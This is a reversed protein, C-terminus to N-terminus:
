EAPNAEAEYAAKAAAVEAERIKVLEEAMAVELQWKEILQKEETFTTAEAIEKEIEAIEAKLEEIDEKMEPIENVAEEADELIDLLASYEAYALNALRNKKYYDIELDALEFALENYVDLNEDVWAMYEEVRAANAKILAIVDETDTNEKLEALQEAYVKVDNTWSTYNRSADAYAVDWDNHTVYIGDAVYVEGVKVFAAKALDFARQADDVANEAAVVAAEAEAVAAEAAPVAEKAAKLEAEATKLDEAAWEARKKVDSLYEQAAALEKKVQALAAEAEAVAEAAAEKEADTATAKLESQAKKAAALAAEAVAVKGTEKKTYEEVAATAQAVYGTEKKSYAESAAKKTAVNREATTVADNADDLADKAEDLADNAEDLADQAEERAEGAEKFPLAAEAIAKWMEQNKVAEDYEKQKNEIATAMAEEGNEKYWEIYGEVAEKDFFGYSTIGYVFMPRKFSDGELQYEKVEVQENDSDSGYLPIFTSRAESLEDNKVDAYYGYVRETNGDDDIDVYESNLYVGLMYNSSFAGDLAANSRYSLQGDELDKVSSYYKFLNNGTDDNKYFQRWIENRQKAIEGNNKLDRAADRAYAAEKYAVYAADADAKIKEVDVETAYKELIAIETEIEVIDEQLEAIDEEQSELYAELSEQATVLGNEAKALEVNYATLTNKASILARSAEAYANYLNMLKAAEQAEIGELTKRYSDKAQELLNQANILAREADVAAKEMAALHKEKEAQWKAVEAEYQAKLAELEARAAEVEVEKLAAEAEVLKAQAAKYAADAEAAKAQALKLAADAEALTKTAEATANNLAAVSKLQETKADRINTVSQSEDDKVCSGLLLALCAAGMMLKGKM